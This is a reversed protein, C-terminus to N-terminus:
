SHPTVSKTASPVSSGAPSRSSVSVSYKTGNTLGRITCSTSTTECTFSHSGSVATATSMSIRSGGNTAPLQWTVKVAASGAVVRMSRPPGPVTPWVGANETPYILYGDGDTGVATCKKATACSVSVFEGGSVASSLERPTKWVGSSEVAYIPQGHTNTTSQTAGVATCNLASTCSVAYFEGTGEPASLLTAPGWVGATETAYMPALGLGTDSRTEGVATCNLASTCSV